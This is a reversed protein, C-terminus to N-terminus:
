RCASIGPAIACGSSPISRTAVITWAIRAKLSGTLRCPGIGVQVLDEPGGQGDGAVPHAGDGVDLHLRGVKRGDAAVDGVEALREEVTLAASAM